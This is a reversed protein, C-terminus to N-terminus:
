QHHRRRHDVLRSLGAARRARASAHRFRQQRAAALPFGDRRDAHHQVADRRVSCPLAGPRRRITRDYWAGDLRAGLYPTAVVGGPLIYQDEWAGELKVHAKNGEYGNVYPVGNHNSLQDAGRHVGLLEGNVNVRGWGPALDQVHAFKVDPLVDGQAPDDSTYNGIRNFHQLRADIFTDTSLHTAYVQNISNDGKTADGYDSLIPTTPSCRIPGASRDLGQHAHVRRPRSRAAGTATVSRGPM